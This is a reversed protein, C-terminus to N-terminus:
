CPEWTEIFGWPRAPRAVQLNHRQVYEIRARVSREDYCFRKDYGDGWIPRGPRLGWRVADKACKAVQGVPHSTAGIVFHAHWTQVTMAYIRLGLRGCLSEGMMSGVRYGDADAFRYLSHKLRAKDVAELDPDAPFVVGKDVWGRADGRLWTGYTTMTVMIALTNAM